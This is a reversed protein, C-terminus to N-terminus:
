EVVVEREDVFLVVIAGERRKMTVQECWQWQWRAFVVVVVSSSCAMVVSLLSSEVRALLFAWDM